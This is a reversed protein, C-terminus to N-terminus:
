IMRRMLAVTDSSDGPLHLDGGQFTLMGCAANMGTQNVETYMLLVCFIDLSLLVKACTNAFFSGREVTGAEQGAKVTKSQEAQM